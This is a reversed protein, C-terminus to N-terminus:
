PLQCVFRNRYPVFVQKKNKLGSLAFIVLGLASLSQNISQAEKLREGTANTKSVQLVTHLM